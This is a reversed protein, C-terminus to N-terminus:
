DINLENVDNEEVGDIDDDDAELAPKPTEM